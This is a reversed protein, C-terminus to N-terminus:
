GDSRGTFRPDGTMLQFISTGCIRFTMLEVTLEEPPVNAVDGWAEFICEATARDTAFAAMINAVGAEPDSRDFDYGGPTPPADAIVSSSSSDSTGSDGGSSNTSETAAQEDASETTSSGGCAAAVLALVAVVIAGSGPRVRPGGSSSM